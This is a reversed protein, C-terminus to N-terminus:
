GGLTEDSLITADRGGNMQGALRRRRALALAETDPLPQTPPLKPANPGKLFGTVPKMISAGVDISRDWAGKVLKSM